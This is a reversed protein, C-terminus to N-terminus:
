KSRKILYFWVPYFYRGHKKRLEILGKDYLGIIYDFLGETLFNIDSVILAKEVTEVTQWSFGNENLAERVKEPNALASHVLYFRGTKKKLVASAERIIKIIVDTGDCGGYREPNFDFSFPMQPPLTIILDVTKEKVPELEVGQCVFLNSINNLSANRLTCDLAEKCPDIAIVKGAGLLSATIGIYGTGCGVDVAIDGNNVVMKNCITETLLGPKYVKDHTEILIKVGQHISHSIM